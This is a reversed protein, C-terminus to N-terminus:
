TSSNGPLVDSIRSFFSLRGVSMMLLVSLSVPAGTGPTVKVSRPGNIDVKVIKLTPRQHNQFEVQTERNPFLTM